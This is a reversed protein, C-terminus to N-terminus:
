DSHAGVPAIRYPCYVSLPTEATNFKKKFADALIM